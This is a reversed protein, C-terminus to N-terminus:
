VSYVWKKCKSCFRPGHGEFRGEKIVQSEDLKAKCCPSLGSNILNDIQEVQKNFAQIDEETYNEQKECQEKNKGFCPYQLPKLDPFDYLAGARCQENEHIPQYHKCMYEMPDKSM